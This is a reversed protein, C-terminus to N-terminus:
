SGFGELFPDSAKQEQGASVMSGTSREANKGNQKQTELQKKLSSIESDKQSSEYDSYADCLSVGSKVKEWVESPIKNPDKAADPFRKQFAALDSKVRDEASKKAEAAKESQKAAEQAEAEKASVKAERDELEVARRAEEDTLGSAKKAETRVYAIYEPIDMKSQQAFQRVMDMVPKSEEYRSRIRDYDMGKQLLVPVDPDDATVTKEQDMHRLTWSKVAPAPNEELKDESDSDADEGEGPQHETGESEDSSSNDAGPKADDAGDASDMSGDGPVSEADSTQEAASEGDFGEAFADSTQETMETTTETENEM